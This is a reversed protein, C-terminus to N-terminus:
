KVANDIVEGVKIIINGDCEQVSSIDPWSPMDKVSSAYQAYDDQNACRIYPLRLYDIYLNLWSRGGRFIHPHVSESYLTKESMHFEDSITTKFKPEGIVVISFNNLNSTRAVEMARSHMSILEMTAREHGYAENRAYAGVTYVSSLVAAILFAIFAKVKCSSYSNERGILLAWVCASSLPEAINVRAPMQHVFVAGMLYPVYLLFLLLLGVVIGRKVSISKSVIRVLLIVPILASAYVWQGPYTVGLMNSLPVTFMYRIVCRIQMETSLGELRSWRIFDGQHNKVSEVISPTVLSTCMLVKAILLSLFAGVIVVIAVRLFDSCKLTQENLVNKVYFAGWLVFIYLLISQYCAVSFMVLLMALLISKKDSKKTIYYVAISALLFSLAVVDSQNSYVLQYLWQIGCLYVVGYALRKTFSEIDFIRVHVLLSLSIVAGSIVGAVLPLSGFGFIYRWLALGWRMNAVYIEHHM